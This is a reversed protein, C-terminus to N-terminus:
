KMVGRCVRDTMGEAPAPPAKGAAGEGAGGRPAHGDGALSGGTHWQQGMVTGSGTSLSLVRSRGTAGIPTGTTRSGCVTHRAPQTSTPTTASARTARHTSASPPLTMKVRIRDNRALTAMSGATALSDRRIRRPTAASITITVKMAAHTSKRTM